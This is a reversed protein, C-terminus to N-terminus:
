HLLNKHTSPFGIILVHRAAEDVTYLIYNGKHKCSRVGEGYEPKLAFIFPSKAVKQVIALMERHYKKAHRIGWNKTSYAIEKDLEALAVPLIEYTYSM